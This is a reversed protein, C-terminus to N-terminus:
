CVWDIRDLADVLSIGQHIRLPLFNGDGFDMEKSPVHITPKGDGHPSRGRDIGHEKRCKFEELLPDISKLVRGSAVSAKASKCIQGAPLQVVESLSM